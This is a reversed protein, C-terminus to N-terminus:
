SLEKEERKELLRIIVKVTFVAGFLWSFFITGVFVVNDSAPHYYLGYLITNAILGIISIYWLIKVKAKNPLNM